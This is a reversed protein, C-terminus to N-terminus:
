GPRLPRRVPRHADIEEQYADSQGSVVEAVRVAQGSFGSEYVALLVQDERRRFYDPNGGWRNGPDL